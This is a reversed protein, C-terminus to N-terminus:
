LWIFKSSIDKSNSQIMDGNAYIDASKLSEELASLVREDAGQKGVMVSVHINHAIKRLYNRKASNM